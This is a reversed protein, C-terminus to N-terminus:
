KKKRKVRAVLRKFNTGKDRREVAAKSIDGRAAAAHMFRQQAKSAYTDVPM